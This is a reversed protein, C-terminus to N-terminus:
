KKVKQLAANLQRVAEPPVANEGAQRILAQLSMGAMMKQLAPNRSASQAVEGRSARAKAMIEGVIAAAQPNQMLTGMTDRISYCSSDFDAEDFWNTVPGKRSFSYDPNFEAM